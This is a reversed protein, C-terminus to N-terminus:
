NRQKLFMCFASVSPLTRLAQHQSLLQLCSWGWKVSLASVNLVRRLGCVQHLAHHPNWGSGAKPLSGLKQCQSCINQLRQYGKKKKLLIGCFRAGLALQAPSSPAETSWFGSLKTSCITFTLLGISFVSPYAGQIFSYLLFDCLEHMLNAVLVVM